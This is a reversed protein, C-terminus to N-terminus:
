KKRKIGIEVDVRSRLATASAGVGFGLIVAWKTMGLVWLGLSVGLLASLLRLSWAWGKPHRARMSPWVLGLLPVALWEVFREVAVGGGALFFILLELPPLGQAKLSAADLNVFEM